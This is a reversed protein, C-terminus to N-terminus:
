SLKMAVKGFNVEANVEVYKRFEEEYSGEEGPLSSRIISSM